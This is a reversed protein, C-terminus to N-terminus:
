CSSDEFIKSVNNMWPDAKKSADIQEVLQSEQKEQQALLREVDKRKASRVAPQQRGSRTLDSKAAKPERTAELRDAEQTLAAVQGKVSSMEQLLADKRIEDAQHRAEAEERRSLYQRRAAELEGELQKAEKQLLTKRKALAENQANSAVTEVDSQSHLDSLQMQRLKRHWEEQEQNYRREQTHLKAEAHQAKLELQRGKCRLEEVLLGERKAESLQANREESIQQCMLKRSELQSSLTELEEECGDLSAEANRVECAASSALMLQQVHEQLENSAEESKYSHTKIEAQEARAEVLELELHQNDESRKHLQEEVNAFNTQLKTLVQETWPNETLFAESMSQLRRATLLANDVEAAESRALETSRVAMLTEKHAAAETAEHTSALKRM